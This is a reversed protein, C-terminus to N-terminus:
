FCTDFKWELINCIKEYYDDHEIKKDITKLMTFDDEKCMFKHRRLLQYLIYQVHLFNIKETELQEYASLISQFDKTLVEELHSIDPLPKGTYHHYLLNIDEYHKTHRTEQLFMRLHDKTIKKPDIGHSKFEKELDFYVKKDIYKNQKGQFQNMTDKFHITKSYKYKKNTNIRDTDHYNIDLSISLMEAGCFKCRSSNDIFEGCSSCAENIENSVTEEGSHKIYATDINLKEIVEPFESKLINVYKREIDDLKNKRELSDNDKNDKARYLFTKKVSQKILKNYSEVLSHTLVIYMSFTEELKNEEERKDIERTFYKKILNDIDNIDSYIVNKKINTKRARKQQKKNTTNNASNTSTM